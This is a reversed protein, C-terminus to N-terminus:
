GRQVTYDYWANRAAYWGEWEAIAGAMRTDPAYGLEGLWDVMYSYVGNGKAM